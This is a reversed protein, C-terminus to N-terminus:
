LLNGFRLASLIRIFTRAEWSACSAPLKCVGLRLVSQAPWSVLLPDGAGVIPTYVLVAEIGRCDPCLLRSRCCAPGGGLVVSRLVRGGAAGASASGM